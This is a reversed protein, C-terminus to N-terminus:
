DRADPEELFIEPKELISNAEERTLLRLDVTWFKGNFTKWLYKKEKPPAPEVWLEWDDITLDYNTKSGFANIGTAWGQHDINLIEFYFSKEWKPRTVRLNPVAGNTKWIELINM